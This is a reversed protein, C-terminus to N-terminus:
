IYQHYNLIALFDKIIQYFVDSFQLWGQSIGLFLNTLSLLVIMLILLNILQLVVVFKVLFGKSFSPFLLFILVNLISNGVIFRSINNFTHCEFWILLFHHKGDFFELSELVDRKIRWAIIRLAPIYGELIEKIIELM